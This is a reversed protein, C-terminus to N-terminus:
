CPAYNACAASCSSASYGMCYFGTSPILTVTNKTVLQNGSSATSTCNVWALLQDRTVMRNSAISPAVGTVYTLGTTIADEVNAKSICQNTALGAWSM